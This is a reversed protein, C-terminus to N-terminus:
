KKMKIGCRPCVPKPSSIHYGCNSCTCSRLLKYGTVYSADEVKDHIWIPNSSIVPIRLGEEGRQLAEYIEAMSVTKVETM